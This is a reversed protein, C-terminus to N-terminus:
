KEYCVTRGSVCACGTPIVTPDCSVPPLTDSAGFTEFFSKKSKISKEFLFINKNSKKEHGINPETTKASVMSVSVILLVALLKKM